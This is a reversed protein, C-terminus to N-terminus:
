RPAATSGSGFLAALEPQGRCGGRIGERLRARGAGGTSRPRAPRERRQVGGDRRRGRLSRDDRGRSRRSCRRLGGGTSRCTACPRSHTSRCGWQAWSTSPATTRRRHSREISRRCSRSSYVAWGALLAFAGGRLLWQRRMVAASAEPSLDLASFAAFVGAIALGVPTAVVFGANKSELLVGPTALAHLGLFGASTIFALSVLFLRADNLRRAAEGALYGLVVSVLATLLVLWFHAPHDEWHLDVEPRALLLVLGALPLTLPLPWRTV